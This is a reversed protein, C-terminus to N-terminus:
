IDNEAASSRPLSLCSSRNFGASWQYQSPALPPAPLPLLLYLESLQRYYVLSLARSLSPSPLYKGVQGLSKLSSTTRVFLM